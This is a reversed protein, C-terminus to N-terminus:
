EQAGGWTATGDDLIGVHEFVQTGDELIGDRETSGTDIMGDWPFIGVDLIADREDYGPDLVGEVGEVGDEFSIAGVAVFALADMYGNESIVEMIILGTGFISASSRALKMGIFGAIGGIIANFVIEVSSPGAYKEITNQFEDVFNPFSM